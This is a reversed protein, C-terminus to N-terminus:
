NGQPPLQGITRGEIKERRTEMKNAFSKTSLHQM